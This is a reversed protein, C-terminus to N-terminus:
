LKKIKKTNRKKKSLKPSKGINSAVVALTNVGKGLKILGPPVINNKGRKTMSPRPGIIKKVEAANVRKSYNVNRKGVGSWVPQNRLFRPNYPQAKRPTDVKSALRRITALLSIYSVFIMILHYLRSKNGTRRNYIYQEEGPVRPVIAKMSKSIQAIHKFPDNTQLKPKPVQKPRFDPMGIPNRPLQNFRYRYIGRVEPLSIGIDESVSNLVRDVSEGEYNGGINPVSTLETRVKNVDHFYPLVRVLYRQIIQQRRQLINSKAGVGKRMKPSNRRFKPRSYRSMQFSQRASRPM